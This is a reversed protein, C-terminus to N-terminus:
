EPLMEAVKKLKEILEIVQARNLPVSAYLKLQMSNVGIVAMPSAASSKLSIWDGGTLEVKEDATYM